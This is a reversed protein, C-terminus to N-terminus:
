GITYFESWGLTITGNKNVQAPMGYKNWIMNCVMEPHYKSLLVVAAAIAKKDNKESSKKNYIVM